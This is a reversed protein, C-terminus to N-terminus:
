RIDDGSATATEISQWRKGTRSNWSRALKGGVEGFRALRSCTRCMGRGKKKSVARGRKTMLQDDM